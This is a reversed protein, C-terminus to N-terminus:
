SHLGCLVLLYRVRRLYCEPAVPLRHYGVRAKLKGPTYTTSVIVLVRDFTFSSEDCRLLIFNPEEFDLSRRISHRCFHEVQRSIYIESNDIKTLIM